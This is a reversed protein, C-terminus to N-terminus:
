PKLDKGRFFMLFGRQQAQFSYRLFHCHSLSVGKFGRRVATDAVMREQDRLGQEHFGCM